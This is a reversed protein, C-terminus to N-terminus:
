EYKDIRSRQEKNRLIFHMQGQSRQKQTNKYAESVFDQLADNGNSCQLGLRGLYTKSSCTGHWKGESRFFFKWIKQEMHILSLITIRQQSCITFLVVQM